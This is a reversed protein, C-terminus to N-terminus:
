IGRERSLDEVSSGLPEEPLRGSTLCFYDKGIQDWLQRVSPPLNCLCLAEAERYIEQIEKARITRQMRVEGPERMLEEVGPHPPVPLSTHMREQLAELRELLSKMIFTTEVIFLTDM